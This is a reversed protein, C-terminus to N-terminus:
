ALRAGNAQFKTLAMLGWDGDTSVYFGFHGSFNGDVDTSNKTVEGNRGDRIVGTYPLTLNLKQGVEVRSGLKITYFEKERDETHGEVAIKKGDPGKVAVKDHDIRVFTSNAHLTISFTAKVVQVEVSVEGRTTLNAMHVVLKLDYHVPVVEGPLWYENPVLLDPGALLPPILLLLQRWCLSAESILLVPVGQRWM